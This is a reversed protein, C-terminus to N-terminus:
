AMWRRMMPWCCLGASACVSRWQRDVEAERGIAPVAVLRLPHRARMGLLDQLGLRLPRLLCKPPASSRGPAAAKEPFANDSPAARDPTTISALSAAALPTSRTSPPPPPPPLPGGASGVPTPAKPVPPTPPRPRLLRSGGGSAVPTAPKLILPTPPKPSSYRSGVASVVPITATLIPPPPIPQRPETASAAPAPAQHTQVPVATDHTITPDPRASVELQSRGSSSRTTTYSSWSGTDSSTSPGQRASQEPLEDAPRHTGPTRNHGSAGIQLLKCLRDPFTQDMAFGRRMIRDLRPDCVSQGIYQILTLQEAGLFPIDWRYTGQPPSYRIEIM